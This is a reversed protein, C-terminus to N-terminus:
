PHHKEGSMTGGGYGQEEERWDGPRQELGGQFMIVSPRSALNKPVAGFDRGHDHGTYGSIKSSSDPVAPAERNSDIHQGPDFEMKVEPVEHKIEIEERNRDQNDSEGEDGEEEVTDGFNSKKRRGQLTDPVM